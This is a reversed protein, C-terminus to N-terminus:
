GAKHSHGTVVVRELQAVQVGSREADVPESLSAFAGMALLSFVLIGNFLNDLM